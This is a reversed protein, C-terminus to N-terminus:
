RTVQNWLARIRTPDLRFEEAVEHATKIGELGRIERLTWADLERERAVEDQLVGEAADDGYTDAVIDALAIDKGDLNYYTVAHWMKGRLVRPEYSRRSSMRAVGRVKWSRVRGDTSADYSDHGPIPRWTEPGPRNTMSFFAQKLRRGRETRLPINQLNPQRHGIRGTPSDTM